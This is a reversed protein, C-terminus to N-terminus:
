NGLHGEVQQYIALAQGQMEQMISELQVIKLSLEKKQEEILEIVEDVTKLVVTDAGINVLLNQRDRLEVKMFIGDALPALIETKEKTKKIEELSEKTVTLEANRENMLEAQQSLQELHEQIQKFHQYKQQLEEENMDKKAM